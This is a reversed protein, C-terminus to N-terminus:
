FWHHVFIDFAKEYEKGHYSNIAYNEKISLSFPLLTSFFNGLIMGINYFKNSYTYKLINIANDETPNQLFQYTLNDLM